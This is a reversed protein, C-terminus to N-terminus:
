SAKVPVQIQQERVKGDKDKLQLTFQVTEGEQLPKKLDFLMLHYGGPALKVAKGAPLELNELMRMKMVGNDMSMSHIEVTGAAPSEVKVLTTAQPSQLTMYAAGVKQGPHTPRAWADSISVADANACAAILAFALIGALKILKNM